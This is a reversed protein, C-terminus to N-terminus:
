RRALSPAPLANTTFCELTAILVSAPANAVAFAFSQRLQLNLSGAFCADLM